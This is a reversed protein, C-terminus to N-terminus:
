QRERSVGLAVLRGGVQGIHALRKCLVKDRLRSDKSTLMIKYMELENYDFTM